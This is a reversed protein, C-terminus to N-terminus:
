VRVLVSDDHTTAMRMTGVGLLVAELYAASLRLHTDTARMISSIPPMAM